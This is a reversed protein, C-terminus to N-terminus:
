ELDDSMKPIYPKWYANAVEPDEVIWYNGCSCKWISGAEEWSPKPTPWEDRCSHKESVKKVWKGM